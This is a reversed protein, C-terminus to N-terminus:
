YKGALLVPNLKQSDMLSGFMIKSLPLKLGSKLKHTKMCNLAIKCVTSYVQLVTEDEIRCFDEGLHVDLLWNM